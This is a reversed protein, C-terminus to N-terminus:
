KNGVFIKKVQLSNGAKVKVLYIGTSLAENRIQRGDLTCVNFYDYEGEVQVRGNAAYVSLDDSSEVTKIGSAEINTLGISNVNIIQNKSMDLNFKMNMFAVVEMNEAIWSEDLTTTFNCEYRDDNWTIPTGWTASIVDRLVHNHTYNSGGNYQYAKLGNEILFVTIHGETVQKSFDETRYGSVKVNLQRSAADYNGAIEVSALAEESEVKKLYDEIHSVGANIDSFAVGVALYKDGSLLVRNFTACPLGKDTFRSYYNNSRTIRFIDPSGGLDQHIDVWVIDDRNEFAKEMIKTGVPCWGCAQSTYKEVLIRHKIPNGWSTEPLLMCILASIFFINKM